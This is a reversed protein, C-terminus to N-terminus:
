SLQVTWSRKESLHYKIDIHKTRSHYQPNQGICFASQNDEHIVTPDAYGSHIDSLLHRMWVSEQTAGALAIYEAEATSLAVCAQKRSKWSVATGGLM